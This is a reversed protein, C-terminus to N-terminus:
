GREQDGNMVMGFSLVSDLKQPSSYFDGNFDSTESANNYNYSADSKFGLYKASVSGGLNLNGTVKQADSKSSVYVSTKDTSAANLNRDLYASNELAAFSFISNNDYRSDSLDITAGIVINALNEPTLCTDCSPDTNGFLLRDANTGEASANVESHNADTGGFYTDVYHEAVLDQKHEALITNAANEGFYKTVM